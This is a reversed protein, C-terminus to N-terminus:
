LTFNLGFIITRSSPYQLLDIGLSPIGKISANGNAEPDFGPYNTIIFLNQGTLSLRVNKFVKKINGLAYSLTLNSMKLYNGKFIFRSSPSQSPNNVDEKVPNQYVSLGINSGINIGGVNLTNMLPQFFIDQGFAGYMSATLSLKKYYFSPNIGLLVDPNPDGLHFLKGNDEYVSFGVTDIGLFKRTYFTNKPYGNEIVQIPGPVYGTNVPAPLGSVNNKLFTANIGLDFKFLESEIIAGNILVELGNNKIEGDLNVWKIPADLPAPQTAPSPFLLNTTKKNFYDITGSIRSDFISFDLGINYQHDSQWKLDPNPNNAQRITGNDFFSYRDQASGAPFEQNGTIGWGARIKLSNIFGINFFKEKSINWAAAFSPFYGYKNNEGFKSSGDARLTATLLYKEKYSFITRGFFSQLESTPDAFSSISRGIAASYQIYNTYDLGFNGFGTGFVGNGSALFGKSKFQTHEFGAIADLRLDSLIEKDFHLTHTIQKTTLENNSVRATGPPNGPLAIDQHMSFRSIGTSYNISFLLKYELWSTFKYYPSFSGLITTVKLNNHIMEVAAAPNFIGPVYKFSGDANRLSDTPNWKLASFLVGDSGNEPFPVDQMYQSSLVSIDAGLKKTELFKFNTSLDIVYKEFGTNKIIGDQKLMNGSLRYKGNENGGTIAITYNSQFGKQLIADYTDVNGGHDHLPNVNYYPIAERYQDANLVDIKQLISSVGVSVGFDIKPQGVIAKKTNIIMVGYAARSGYIASASADKLVDISAVDDPNIFNLPNNGAQLSRGDLPVGDIVFLPQGTGSLASNGRIKITAAGGPMGNNYTIQLGSVKGQVLQDPSAFIGKNFDKESVSGIAGTLDKKKATGYGIVVVDDLTKITEELTISLQTESGIIVELDQFGVYSITITDGRDATIAFDGNADSLTRKNKKKLEITAGVLPSNRKDTIKGTITQQSFTNGSCVILLIFVVLFSGSSVPHTSDKEM